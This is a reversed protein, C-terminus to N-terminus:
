DMRLGGNVHLTIGTLYSAKPSALFAIADAVEAPEGIRGLPIANVREARQAKTDKELVATDISGPAVTNVTIHPALERALSRALGLVAAKASAYPAGHRSGSLALVSSIFIVRGAESQELLPLLGQTLKAPGFVHEEFMARFEHPTIDRFRVRPYSGANHVLVDLERWRGKVQHVIDNVNSPVGIDGSVLFGRGGRRHIDSLVAEAEAKHRHYHVAVEMGDEALRRATAEGIGRSAGTVLARV